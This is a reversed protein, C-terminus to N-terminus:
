GVNSLKIGIERRLKGKNMVVERYTNTLETLDIADTRRSRRNLISTELVSTVAAVEKAITTDGVENLYRVLQAVTVTRKNNTSDGITEKIATNGTGRALSRLASLVSFFEEFRRM